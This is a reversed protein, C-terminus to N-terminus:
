ISWATSCTMCPACRGTQRAIAWCSSIASFGLVILNRQIPVTAQPAADGVIPPRAGTRRQIAAQIREAAAAYKGDEPAVIVSAARGGQVLPIHDHLTKLRAYQPPIPPPPPPPLPPLGGKLRVDTVLLKPTPARHTYLYIMGQTTGQPAVGQVSVESFKEASRPKLSTQVFENSPLFRLQLYAGDSAADPLAAVKVTARYTQGGRLAFTQVVGIEAEDDGDIIRLAKGGAIDVVQLQQGKGGGGYVSWGPPVGNRDVKETFTPNRLPVDFLEASQVPATALAIAAVLVGFCMNLPKMFVEGASDATVRMGTHRVQM